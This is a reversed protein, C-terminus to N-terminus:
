HRFCQTTTQKQFRRCSHSRIRPKSAPIYFYGVGQLQHSGRSAVEDLQLTHACLALSKVARALYSALALPECCPAISHRLVRAQQPMHQVHDFMCCALTPLMVILLTQFASFSHLTAAWVPPKSRFLSFSRTAYSFLLIRVPCFFKGCTESHLPLASCGCDPVDPRRHCLTLEIQLM